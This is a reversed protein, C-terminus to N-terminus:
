LYWEIITDGGIEFIRNKKFPLSEAVGAAGRGQFWGVAASGGILKPSVSLLLKDVLGKELFSTFVRGGGEVLVSSVENEALWFMSKKLDIGSASGGMSIVTAGKERLKEAKQAPPDNRTFILIDG